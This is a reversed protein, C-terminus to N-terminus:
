ERGGSRPLNARYMSRTHNAIEGKITKKLQGKFWRHKLLSEEFYGVDFNTFDNFSTNLFQSIGSQKNRDRSIDVANNPRVM